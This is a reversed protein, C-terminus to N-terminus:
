SIAAGRPLLAFFQGAHKTISAAAYAEDGSGFYIDGREPGRIASGVDNAIMLRRFGGPQDPAHIITPAVVYIPTGLVHFATDVALSRGPRLPIELAGLASEAQEGELERFFVFSRNQRMVERGRVLDARLWDKLADLSMSDAPFIGADILYRGISTYPHGNKGDYTIRILSGDPLRIRGSGQIHMFFCDVPDKLWVLELGQGGLAGEEIAERTAYPEVGTATQRAHTLAHAMAGRESEAVLNVLDPPRRYVPIQYAGGRQRAGDVVPEYYGTLLGPAGAHVVRHPEFRTEFFAKADGPRRTEASLQLAAECAALLQPSAGATKAAKVAGRAAALVPRASSVFTAFAAAHDDGEWGELASFPVPEFAVAAKPM